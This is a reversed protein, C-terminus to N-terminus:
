SPTAASSPGRRDDVSSFSDARSGANLGPPLTVAPLEHGSFSPAAATTTIDSCRALSSPMVGRARMMAELTEPTAGSIM